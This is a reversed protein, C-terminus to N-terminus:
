GRRGGQIDRVDKRRFVGFFLGRKEGETSTICAFPIIFLFCAERWVYISVRFNAGSCTVVAARPPSNHYSGVIPGFAM